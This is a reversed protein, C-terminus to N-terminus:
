HEHKDVSVVGWLLCKRFSVRSHLHTKGRQRHISQRPALHALSSVDFRAWGGERGGGLDLEDMWVYVGRGLRMEGGEMGYGCRCRLANGGYKSRGWWCIRQIRRPCM